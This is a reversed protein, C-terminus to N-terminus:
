LYIGIAACCYCIGVYKGVYIVQFVRGSGGDVDAQFAVAVNDRHGPCM